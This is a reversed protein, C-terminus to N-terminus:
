LVGVHRNIAKGAVLSRVCGKGPPPPACACARKRAHAFCLRIYMTITNKKDQTCM